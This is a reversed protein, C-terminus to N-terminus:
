GRREVAVVPVDVGGFGAKFHSIGRDKETDGDRAQWGLELTAIGEAKLARIATWIVAHQLSQTLAAGSAYYAWDENVIFYAFALPQRDDHYAIVTFGHKADAWEGMLRWTEAARTERRASAVHLAHCVEVEGLGNGFGTDFTYLREAARILSHYSKRVGRWLTAEDDTLDLIRTSWTATALLRTRTGPEDGYAREYELWASSAWWEAAAARWDAANVTM